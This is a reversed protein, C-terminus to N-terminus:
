TSNRNRLSHKAKEKGIQISAYTVDQRHPNKRKCRPFRTSLKSNRTIIHANRKMNNTEKEVKNWKEYNESCFLKSDGLENVGGSRLDASLFIDFEVSEACSFESRSGEFNEAEPIELQAFFRFIECGNTPDCSGDPADGDPFEPFDVRERKVPPKPNFKDGLDGWDSSLEPPFEGVVGGDLKIPVM